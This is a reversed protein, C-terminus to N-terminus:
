RLGLDKLTKLDAKLDKETYGFAKHLHLFEDVEFRSSFGLLNRVQKTTLKGTKYSEAVVQEFVQRSINEGGKGNLLEDPINLKVEIEM